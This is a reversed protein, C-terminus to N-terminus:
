QRRWFKGIRDYSFGGRLIASERTDNENESRYALAYFVYLPIEGNCRQKREGPVLYRLYFLFRGDGGIKGAFPEIEGGGQVKYYVCVCM